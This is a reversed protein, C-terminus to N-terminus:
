PAMPGFQQTQGFSPNGVQGAFGLLQGLQNYPDQRQMMMEQTSLGRRQMDQNFRNAMSSPWPFPREARASKQNAMQNGFFQQQQQGGFQDAFRSQGAGFQDGFQNQQIQQQDAARGQQAGFQDGFQQQQIGQQDRRGAQQAAFQDRAQQQDM